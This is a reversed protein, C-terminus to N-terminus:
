LEANLGHALAFLQANGRGPPTRLRGALSTLAANNLGAAPTQTPETAFAVSLASPSGMGRASGAAGAATTTSALTVTDQYAFLSLSQSFVSVPSLVSYYNNVTLQYGGTSVGGYSGVVIRYSEGANTWFVLRSNPYGGGDDNFALLNKGTADFVMVVPDLTSGAVQKLDIQVYRSSASSLAYVDYDGPRQVYATLNFGPSAYWMGADVYAPDVATIDAVNRLDGSTSRAGLVAQLYTYSNQTTINVPVRITLWPTSYGVYWQPQLRSDPSTSTGNNNLTTIDFTQNAFFVNSADYSMIEQGPSSLVHALGFTHGAEHAAAQAITTNSWSVNTSGSIPDVYAIDYPNSNPRHTIGLIQGPYDCNAFPAYAYAVNNVGTGNGSKDGIFITTNGNSSSDYAGDGYKRMVEVDFPAFIEATRYLIEHIDRTRDGTTSQFSSVGQATWGDFNLYLITPGSHRPFLQAVGTMDTVSLLQRDELTELQPRVRRDSLRSRPSLSPRKRVPSSSTM